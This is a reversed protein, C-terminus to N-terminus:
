LARIFRSRHNGKVSFKGASKDYKIGNGNAYDGIVVDGADTGTAVVEFLKKNDYMVDFVPVKPNGEQSYDDDMARFRFGSGALGTGSGAKINAAVMAETYIVAAFIVKGSERAIAFADKAAFGISSHHKGM